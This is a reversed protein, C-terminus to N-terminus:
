PRRSIRIHDWYHHWARSMDRGAATFASSGDWAGNLQFESFGTPTLNVNTYSGCLTRNVWWRIVGDRSTLSTSCKLYLEIFHWGSGAAVTAAAANINPVLYGSLGSPDGVYGSVHANSYVTQWFWRIERPQDQLGGWHILSNDINPDRFFFCSTVPISLVKFSRM